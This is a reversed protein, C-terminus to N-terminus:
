PRIAFLDNVLEKYVGIQFNDLSISNLAPAVIFGSGPGNDLTDEGTFHQMMAQYMKIEKLQKDYYKSEIDLNNPIACLWIRTKYFKFLEKILERFDNREQCVYYFTLKKRDFQFEANLIKINLNSRPQQHQHHSLGSNLSNLKLQAIHLAKLEDQFKNHLNTTVEWSTAFRLVQKSPIILQTLEIVDYLKSNLEDTHGQITDVLARVFDRNPFHQDRNTILSDFHIKKKLFNIFLALDLEVHPNIVVALDKGRDGDIVVLDEREMALNTAHSISLLELKGNKLAVLVLPKYHLYASTSSNRRTENSSVFADSQPNYNLNSSKLFTLFKTINSALDSTNSGSLCDDINDLFECAENSSFYNKGCDRYLAKLESSAVVQGKVLELGNDLHHSGNQQGVTAAVTNFPEGSRYNIKPVSQRKGPAQLYRNNTVNASTYLRDLQSPLMTNPDSNMPSHILTDAIYSSRRDANFQQHPQLFQHATQHMLPLVQTQQDFAQFPITGASSPSLAGMRNTPQQTLAAYYSTPSALMTSGSSGSSGVSNNRSNAAGVSATIPAGPAMPPPVQPTLHTSVFPVPKNFQSTIAQLNAREEGFQFGPVMSWPESNSPTMQVARFVSHPSQKQEQQLHQQHQPPIQQQQLPVQRQQQQQQQQLPPQQQVLGGGGSRAGFSLGSIFDVNRTEPHEAPARPMAQRPLDTLSKGSSNKFLLKDYYNRLALNDSISTTSNISPLDANLEIRKDEM